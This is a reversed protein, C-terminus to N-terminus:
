GLSYVRVYDVQMNTTSTARSGYGGEPIAGAFSRGVESRGGRGPRLALTKRAAM